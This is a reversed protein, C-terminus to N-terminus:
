RPTWYSVPPLMLLKCM